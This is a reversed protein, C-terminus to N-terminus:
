PHNKNEEGIKPPNGERHQMASCYCTFELYVHLFSIKIESIILVNALYLISNSRGKQTVINLIVRVRMIMRMITIMMMRLIIMRM